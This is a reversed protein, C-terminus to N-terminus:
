CPAPPDGANWFYDVLYTLDLADAQDNGNVDAEAECPPPDGGKWLWDVFYTLDLADVQSDHNLDGRLACCDGSVTVHGDISRIQYNAVDGYYYPLKDDYGDLNILATMGIEASGPIDFQLKVIPGDGPPLDAQSGTQLRLTIRQGWIPDYHLYDQVDFYATRCGGTSFGKYELGWTNAFEVPIKIYQVPATNNATLTLTVTSNPSGTADEGHITDAVAIIFRQKTSTRIDGGGLDAEVTVDYMGPIDYTQMPPTQVFASDGDGFDWTWSLVDLATVADFNVDLPVEGLTADAWFIIGPLNYDIFSARYGIRSCGYTILMYGDIGWDDDWSNKIIWVGQGNYDDDWGVLTVAHNYPEDVCANFVGGAYSYWPDSVHVGVYLPGYEMLAHKLSDIPSISYANTVYGWGDIWYDHPYPCGCPLDAAAYPFYQELVAGSDGCPDDKWQHYDHAENGGSVCDWGDRNCSVLWQESLDVTIGDRIKIASELPGVTAFAWCSGCGGQDKVPTVGDYDRWDWRVPLTQTASPAFVTTPQLAPADARMGCLQELSYQTNAKCLGVEFTWGEQKGRERLADIDKQTLQAQVSSGIFLIAIVIAIVVVPMRGFRGSVSRWHSM